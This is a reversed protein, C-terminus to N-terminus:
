RDVLRTDLPPVDFIADRLSGLRVSVVLKRSNREVLLRAVRGPRVLELRDYVGARWV